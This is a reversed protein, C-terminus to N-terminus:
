RRTLTLTSWGAERYHTALAVGQARYAAIVEPAQPVLIGSVVLTGGRRLARSVAPALRILPEALINAVV